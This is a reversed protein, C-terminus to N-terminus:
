SASWPDWSPGICWIPGNSVEVLDLGRERALNIAEPVPMAGLQEGTETIM